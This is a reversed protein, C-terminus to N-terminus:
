RDVRKYGEPIDFSADSTPQLDAIQTTLTLLTLQETVEGSGNQDMNEAMKMLGALGGEGTEPAAMAKEVDIEADAPALVLYIASRVPIGPMKGMEEAAKELSSGLRPDQGMQAFMGAFDASSAGTVSAGFAEGMQRQFQQMTKYGALEDTMWLDVIAHMAAEGTEGTEKDTGSVDLQIHLLIQEADSGNVAEKRGTRDTTVAFDTEVDVDEDARDREKAVSEKAAEVQEAAEEAMEAFTKETYEKRAHNLMIFREDEVDVVTSTEEDDTRQHTSTVTVTELTNGMGQGVMRSLAGLGGGFDISTVSRYQVQAAGAPGTANPGLDYQEVQEEAAAEGMRAVASNVADELGEEGKDVAKDVAEDTRREVREDIKKKAREKARKWIQADADQVAGAMLLAMLLLCLTRTLKKM